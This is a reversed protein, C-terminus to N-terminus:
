PQIIWELQGRDAIINCYTKLDKQNLWKAKAEEELPEKSNSFKEEYESLGMLNSSDWIYGRYRIYRLEKAYYSPKEELMVDCIPNYFLNPNATLLFRCNFVDICIRLYAKNLLWMGVEGYHNKSLEKWNDCQFVLYGDNQKAVSKYSYKSIGDIFKGLVVTPRNKDIQNILVKDLKSAKSREICKNLTEKLDNTTWGYNNEENELLDDLLDSVERDLEIMDFHNNPTNSTSSSTSSTTSSGSYTGVASGVAVGGLLLGGFGVVVGLANGLATSFSSASSGGGSSGGEKVQDFGFLGSSHCIAMNTCKKVNDEILNSLEEYGYRSVIYDIGDVNIIEFSLSDKRIEEENNTVCYKLKLIQELKDIKMQYSCNYNDKTSLKNIGDLSFSFNDNIEIIEEDSSLDYKNINSLDNYYIDKDLTSKTGEGSISLSFVGLFMILLTLFLKKM